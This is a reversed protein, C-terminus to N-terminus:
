RMLSQRSDSPASSGRSKSAAVAHAFGGLALATEYCARLCEPAREEAAFTRSVETCFPSWTARYGKMFYSMVLAHGFLTIDARALEAATLAAAEYYQLTKGAHVVTIRPLTEHERIGFSRIIESDHHEQHHASM